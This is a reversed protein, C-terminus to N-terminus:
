IQSLGKKTEQQELEMEATIRDLTLSSWDQLAKSILQTKRSISLNSGRIADIANRLAGTLCIRSSEVDLSFAIDENGALHWYFSYPESRM